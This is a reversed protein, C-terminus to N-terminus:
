ETVVAQATGVKQWEWCAVRHGAEVDVLPPMEQACKDVRYTCRAYFPCGPPMNILDPPAGEIPVLKSKKKGTEAAQENVEKDAM